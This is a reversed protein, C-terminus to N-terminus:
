FFLGYISKFLPDKCNKTLDPPTEDSDPTKERVLQDIAKKFESITPIIDLNHLISLQKMFPLEPEFVTCIKKQTFIRTNKRLKM